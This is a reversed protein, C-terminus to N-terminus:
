GFGLRAYIRRAPENGAAVNLIVERMGVALLDAVVRATTAAGYGRGRAEPRTYVNGVAAIGYRRAVVHTGAAAVLGAAPRGDRSAVAVRAYEAFPPELDAIAYGSWRRDSALAAYAAAEEADDRVVWSGM